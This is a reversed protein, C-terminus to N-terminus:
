NCVDYDKLLQFHERTIPITFSARFIARYLPGDHM